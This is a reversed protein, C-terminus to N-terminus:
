ERVEQNKNTRSIKMDVTEESLSVVYKETLCYELSGRKEITKEELKENKGLCVKRNKDFSINSITKTKM